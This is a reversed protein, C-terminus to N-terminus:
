SWRTASPARLCCSTPATSRDQTTQCFPLYYTFNICGSLCFICHLIMRESILRARVPRIIFPVERVHTLLTDAVALLSELLSPGDTKTVIAVLSSERERDNTKRARRQEQYFVGGVRRWARVREESTRRSLAAVKQRLKM